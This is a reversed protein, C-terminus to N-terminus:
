GVAAVIAQRMEDASRYRREVSKELAREIAAALQPSVRPNRTRVPIIPKELVTVLAAVGGTTFDYPLEGTVLRYLTVGMSYLDAPPRVDRFNLIQEPAMYAVTGGMEGTRTFGSAGSSEYSKALGFDLLKVSLEGGAGRQVLLNADKVDRHVIGQAHAHGLGLLAEAVIGVGLRPDLAGNKELLKEANDGDVFEMAMCFIGPKVEQLDLVQVICRHQLRAQETAERLFLKRVKESMAAKPLIVKLARDVGLALHRALFVAGMGGRGLERVVQYGPLLQPEDLLAAQCPECFYAVKESRSRPAEGAAKTGCRLCRVDVPGSSRSGGLLDQLSTAAHAIPAQTALEAQEHLVVQLATHGAQIRDGHRLQTQTVRDTAGNIFTGNTSGMDVLLVNPPDVEVFFHYRSFHADNTISLQAENARGVVLRDRSEFTFTRGIDPGEVVRLEVKM